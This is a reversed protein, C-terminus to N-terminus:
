LYGSDIAVAEVVPVRFDEPPSGIEVPAMPASPLVYTPVSDDNSKMAAHWAHGVIRAKLVLLQKEMLENLGNLTPLCVKEYSDKKFLHKSTHDSGVTKVRNNWETEDDLLQTEYNVKGIAICSRETIHFIGRSPKTITATRYEGSFPHAKKVVTAFFDRLAEMDVCYLVLSKGSKATKFQEEDAQEPKWVATGNVALVIDGIRLRTRSTDSLFVDGITVMTRARCSAFSVGPNIASTPAVEVYCFPSPNSRADSLVLTDFDFTTFELDTCSKIISTAQKVNHVAEGNIALIEQGVSLTTSRLLSNESLGSVIVTNADANKVKIGVSQGPAREIRVTGVAPVPYPDDIPRSDM